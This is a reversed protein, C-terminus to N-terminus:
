CWGVALGSRRPIPQRRELVAQASYTDPSLVFSYMSLGSTTGKSALVIMGLLGVLVHVRPLLDDEADASAALPMDDYM